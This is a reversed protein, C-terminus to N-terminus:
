EYKPLDVKFITAKEDIIDFSINGNQAEVMLKASYGGLGSGKKNDGTAYKDFLNDRLHLPVAGQNICTFQISLATEKLSVNIETNEPAAEVANKLLNNFISICLLPEASAIMPKELGISKIQIDKKVGDVMCANIADSVLPSLDTKVPSLTYTGQEIKFLELSRNIMSIVNNVTTKIASATNPENIKDAHFLISALPGKLDHQTIKEMDERLKATEELTHVQEALQEQNQKLTIHTQVRALLVDGQLPKTIYDVAGVSFGKTIDAVESKATLFIVPIKDSKNNSKIAQCVQYGDMEPMMIDLLILDINKYQSNILQLAQRGSKAAIIRYIGRLYGAAVDINSSEDDVILVTPQSHKRNSPTHIQSEESQKEEVKFMPEKTIELLTSLLTRKNFPKQIVRNRRKKLFSLDGLLRDSPQMVIAAMKDLEKLESLQRFLVQISMDMLNDGCIILDAPYLELYDLADRGNEIGAISSKKLGCSLLIKAIAERILRSDDVILVKKLM